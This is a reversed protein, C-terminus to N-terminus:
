PLFPAQRDPLRRGPRPAATCHAPRPQPRHPVGTGPQTPRDFLNPKM